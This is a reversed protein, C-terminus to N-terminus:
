AQIEVFGISGVQMSKPQQILNEFEGSKFRQIWESLKIQKDM